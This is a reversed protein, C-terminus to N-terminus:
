GNVVDQAICISHLILRNSRSEIQQITHFLEIKKDYFSHNTEYIIETQERLSLNGEMKKVRRKIRIMTTIM